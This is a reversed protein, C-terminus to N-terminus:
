WGEAWRSIYRRSLLLLSDVHLNMQINGFLHGPLESGLGAADGPNCDFRQGNLSHTGAFQGYALSAFHQANSRAVLHVPEKLRVAHVQWGRQLLNDSVTFGGDREGFSPPRKLCM